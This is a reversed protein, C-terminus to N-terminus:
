VLCCHEVAAMRGPSSMLIDRSDIMLMAARPGEGHVNFIPCAFQYRRDRKFQCEPSFPTM